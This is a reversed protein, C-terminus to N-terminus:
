DDWDKFKAPKVPHHKKSVPNSEPNDQSCEGEIYDAPKTYPYKKKTWLLWGIVVFMLTLFAVFIVSFFFFILILISIAFLTTLLRGFWSQSTIHIVKLNRDHSAKM